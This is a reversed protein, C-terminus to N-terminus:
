QNCKATPDHDFVGHSYDHEDASNTSQAQVLWATWYHDLEEDTMNRIDLDEESLFADRLDIM